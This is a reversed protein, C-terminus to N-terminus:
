PNTGCVVEFNEFLLMMGIKGDGRNFKTNVDPRNPFFFYGRGTNRKGSRTLIGNPHHRSDWDIEMLIALDGVEIPSPVDRSIVRVLDGPKVSRM